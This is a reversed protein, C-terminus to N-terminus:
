WEGRLGFAPIIPLGTIPSEASYDTTWAIVEVNRRNTVNQLDLYFTLKWLRYVWEKDFRLDAQWYPPLRSSDTAGYLPIWTRSDLDWLRNEVPTYPNGSGYRVRAGLRWRKPLQHSALATLIVPQDYTFLTEEGNRDTRDARQVTVALWGVTRESQLKLLAEVGIAHGLGDNLYEGTDQPGFPPPGTFFAFADERGVILGRLHNEFGTVELSWDPLLQWDFGISTQLADAEVLDPNEASQRFTPFQSYQGFGGDISLTDTLEYRATIRPDFAVLDNDDSIFGDYRLGTTMEFKGVDFTPEVYVGPATWAIDGQDVPHFGEVDFLWRYRGGTIDTGIRWGIGGDEPTLRWEHRFGCTWPKEYAENDDGIAFTQSEPGSIISTEATWRGIPETWNVQGKVFGIHLGFLESDGDDIIRFSDDSGFLLASVMGGTARETQLRLQGDYYRPAQVGGLDFGDLVPNLIADIYSRRGSFSVATRDSVRTEFFATTQYL